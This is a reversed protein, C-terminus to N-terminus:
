RPVFIQLRAGAPVDLTCAALQQGAYRITMVTPGPTLGLGWASGVAQTEQNAPDVTFPPFPTSPYVVAAGAPAFSVTAGSVRRGNCDDVVVNVTGLAPDWRRGVVGYLVSTMKTPTFLLVPVPLPPSSVLWQIQRTPVYPGGAVAADTDVELFTACPAPQVGGTPYTVTALGVSNSTAASGLAGHANRVSVTAAEVVSIPPPTSLAIVRATLVAPDPPVPRTGLCGFELQPPGADVTGDIPPADIPAADPSAAGGCASAGCLAAGAVIAIAGGAGQLRVM